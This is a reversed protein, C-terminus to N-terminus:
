LAFRRLNKSKSKDNQNKIKSKQMQKPNGNLAPSQKPVPTGRLSSFEFTL